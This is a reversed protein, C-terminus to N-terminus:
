FAITKELLDILEWRSRVNDRYPDITCHARGEFTGTCSSVLKTVQVFDYVALWAENLAENFRINDMLATRTTFLDEHYSENDGFRLRYITIQAM